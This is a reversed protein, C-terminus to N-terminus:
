FCRGAGSLINVFSDCTWGASLPFIHQRTIKTFHDKFIWDTWLNFQVSTRPLLGQESTQLQITRLSMQRKVTCNRHLIWCLPLTCSGRGSGTVLLHSLPVAGQFNDLPLFCTEKNVAMVVLQDCTFVVHWHWCWQKDTHTFILPQKETMCTFGTYM